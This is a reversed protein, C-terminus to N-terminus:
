PAITITGSTAIRTYWGDANFRVEYNGATTPAPLTVTGQTMGTTPATTTNNLFKYVGSWTDSPSGAPVITVYDWANGPGNTVSVTLTSGRTVTIPGTSGNVTMSSGSTSGSVTIVGSTAIRTYWGDANFRLEYQGPTTPAPVSVTANIMGPNPPTTTGNLFQYVGTWKDAPSGVPVVTLYDYSHGPGNSVVVTMAAGPAVTIAGTTGNVTMTTGGPPPAAVVSLTAAGSTGGGPGPNVVTITRTGATAVDSAPISATLQTSSQYTTSRAAGNVLVQSAAVFSSGSVTLNFAGQGATVSGPSISTLSPVPNNQSGVSIVGSTALRTYWGNANFRVEYSGPTSPATMSVTAASLGPNPATTTGNLFKYSGTWTDAASGVPVVTLYDMSNAPGGSVSVTLTAGPAVSVAGAGGNVTMTAASVTLTISGSTGGGPAPTFVTITRAGAAARDGETLAASLATSSVFTTPRSAGNIQVQSNSAFNTGTVSLTFAPGGAPLTTPSIASLTPSPPAVAINLSVTNSVGGGPTPNFVTIAATGVSSVDAAQVAASLSTPSGYTTTRPSGNVRVVSASTFGSGSVNLTFAPSGAAVSSPSLSAISPVPNSSTVTIAGSTALRDYWGNALFRVEYNGTTAPVQLTVTADSIGPNPATTTGNLFKYNGTWTNAPSGFPVVTVYDMPNAPGNHIVITLTSGPSVSLPGTTGNVTMEVAPTVTLAVSGSTGGGPTPNRVTIARTGLSTIDSAPLAATLSTASVFTTSRAAGDIRVSSTSTFGTGTVTLTFAPGNIATRSPSIASVTPVPNSFNPCGQNIARLANLRGGSVTKGTLSPDRDVSNLLAAKLAATNIQCASLVLAAAGSVHPASMSTGGLYGYSNGPLTSWTSGGPAALHVSTAGYNSFSELTGSNNVAAVSIVNSSTFSAPYHPTTDNNRGDTGAAAVFLMDSNNAAQIETALAQSYAVGGWSANLVRINGDAGLAAKAQIAFEIAKIADSTTGTGNQDLIKLPMLNAIWSVGTIGTNNNGVAGIIGAVHTGHGTTSDDLPLCSNNLANYGHSGPQCTLTLSDITVQFQRPASFVNAALDPHSFDIGTDLIAVINARSGATLDWAAAASIDAGAVGAQGDVPQGNNILGWQLNLSPDNPVAHARIIYNPEAFEVDPNDRLAALMERTTSRRSRLRRAGVRGIRESTESGAQFEARERQVRGTESRYRVIVEGEVVEHGDLVVIRRPRPTQSEQSFLADTGLTTLALALTLAIRSTRRWRSIASHKM